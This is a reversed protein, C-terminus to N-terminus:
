HSCIKQTLLALMQLMIDLLAESLLVKCSFLSPFGFASLSIHEFILFPTCQNVCVSSRKIM